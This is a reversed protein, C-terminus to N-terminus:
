VKLRNQRKLDIIHHSIHCIIYGLLPGIDNAVTSIGLDSILALVNM